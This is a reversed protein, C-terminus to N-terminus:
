ICEMLLHCEDRLGIPRALRPTTSTDERALLQPIKKVSNSCVVRHCDLNGFYYELYAGGNSAIRERLEGDVTNDETMAGAGIVIGHFEVPIWGYDATFVEAWTHGFLVEDFGGMEFRGEGMPYGALAGAVERAPIGELRCLAIFTHTLTICHGGSDALIASTSCGLCQCREKTKKFRRSRALHDYIRRAKDYDSLDGDLDLQQRFHKVSASAGILPDVKSYWRYQNPSLTLPRSAGELTRAKVRVECTYIFDLPAKEHPNLTIPYAYFFGKTPVLYNQLDPPSCACLRIDQQHPTSIPYPLFLQASLGPELTQPYVRYRYTLRYRQSSLRAFIRDGKRVFFAQRKQELARYDSEFFRPEHDYLWNWSDARDFWLLRGQKRHPLGRQCDEHVITQIDKSSLAVPTSLCLHHVFEPESIAFQPEIQYASQIFHRDIVDAAAEGGQWAKVHASFGECNRKFEAYNDFLARVAACVVEASHFDSWGIKLGLGLEHIRNLHYEQDLHEPAGIIPVGQQLAHYISGIGGIGIFLAARRLIWEAPLFDVIRINASLATVSYRGATTVLVRYPAHALAELLPPLFAPEAGTSGCNLYILPRTADWGEDRLEPIIRPEPVEDLLPGVYHYSTQTHAGPPHFEPVDAVLYITRHPKASPAQQWLYEDFPGASVSFQEPLRIPFPYGPQNYAAEVLALDVGELAATLQLTPRMDALVMAPELQRILAREGQMCREIWDLDYYAYEGRAVYADMRSQPMTEVDHVQFGEAVVRHRHPGIGALEVPYGRERLARAIVLPRITHALSYGHFFILQPHESRHLQHAAEIEEVRASWALLRALLKQYLVSLVVNAENKFNM